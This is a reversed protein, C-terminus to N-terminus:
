LNRDLNVSPVDLDACVHLSVRLWSDVRARWRGSWRDRNRKVRRVRVKDDTGESCTHDLDRQRSQDQGVM